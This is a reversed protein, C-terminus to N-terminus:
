ACRVGRVVSAAIERLAADDIAARGAQSKMEEFADEFASPDLGIGLAEFRRCLAHRGSHKGLVLTSGSHGVDEPRMIEYTRRDKLLGHQHIGAEHAFANDGVVAKNAQVAMGTVESVLRSTRLLETTAVRTKVGFWSARTRLAMVMEELAANGAREGLGNVCCEVQRAGAEVAALSNAVALGLDNHCHASLVVNAGVVARVSRFMEAFPEPLAYGVTDPLNIVTAGSEAAVVAVECLFDIDSRSADEASFEVSDCHERCMSVGIRVCEVVQARSMGLKHEMHLDSTAIFTHLRRKQAPAVASVAAEIDSRTARCLAAIEPGEAQKAIERVAHAERPGAAPFGAEIVDVRLVALQLAVRVKDDCTMTAGPSQEGDRLTTDFIEVTEPVPSM